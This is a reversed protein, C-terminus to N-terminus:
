LITNLNLQLYFVTGKGVESTFWIKGGHKEIIKKTISLGLGFPQEGGTGQRKSPTFMEFISERNKEPIGIGNDEVHILVQNEQVQMGIKITGGEFSFKIANVIVNNFVRWMKEANVHAIVPKDDNEFIIEQNKTKAKFRLLEVSDFLLKKLNVEEAAIPANEDDLGSRLLENIMDMTNSGTSEILKLAHRSDESFHEDEDLLMTALGTIGWLPNRLDHAMVRMMRIYNQNASELKALTDKLQGNYLVTNHHNKRSRKLSRTILVMIVSLLVAAITIAVLYILKLKDQQKLENLTQQQHLTTLERDVDLRFIKSTSAQLSDSLRVYTDLYQYAKEPQKIKFLYAAYLKNWKLLADPNDKWYRDLLKRSKNFAEAAQSYNGTRTNLDAYKMYLTIRMGDVDVTPTNLAITLCRNAEGYNGKKIALGGLNDYVVISSANIYFKTLINDRDAQQILKLDRNYYFAASDLQGNREFAVGANNLASQRIFFLKERTLMPNCAGLHNYNQGWYKAALAYNKQAFYIDAMRASLIGDDCSGNILLRKGSDYYHLAQNYRGDLMCADGKTLLTQLYQEKYKDANNKDNFFALASDAYVQMAPVNYRSRDAMICYYVTIYPDNSKIQPRLKLLIKIASDGKSAIILSDVNEFQRKLTISEKNSGPNECATFLIIYIFLYPYFVTYPRLRNYCM